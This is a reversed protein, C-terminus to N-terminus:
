WLVFNQSTVGHEPLCSGAQRFSSDLVMKLTDSYVELKHIFVIPDDSINTFMYWVPRRRM